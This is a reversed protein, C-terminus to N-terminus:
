RNTKATREIRYRVVYNEDLEGTQVTWLWMDRSQYIVTQRPLM